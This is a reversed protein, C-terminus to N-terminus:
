SNATSSRPKLGELFLRVSFAIRDEIDAPDIRNGSVIVRVPASVVMSMFATAAMEPRDTVVAGTAIHRRLQDALFAIVPRTVQQNAMVFIEPFRYSEANIMRQLRVGDRSMVQRIRMRATEGLLTELDTEELARLAKAQGAVMRDIAHQVTARFLAAKDAYRSYITRKTM